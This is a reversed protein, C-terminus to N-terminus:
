EDDTIAPMQSTMGTRAAVTADIIADIEQFTKGFMEALQRINAWTPRKMGREWVSVTGPTVGVRVAVENQSMHAEERLEKLTM